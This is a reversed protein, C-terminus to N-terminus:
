TGCAVKSKGTLVNILRCCSFYGTSSGGPGFHHFWAAMRSKSASDLSKHCLNVVLAPWNDSAMLTWRQIRPAQKHRRAEPGTLKRHAALSLDSTVGNAHREIAFGGEIVCMHVYTHARARKDAAAHSPSQKKNRSVDRKSDFTDFLHCIPLMHLWSEPALSGRLTKKREGSHSRNAANLVFSVPPFFQLQDRFM